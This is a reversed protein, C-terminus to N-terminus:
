STKVATPQDHLLNSAVTAACLAAGSSRSLARTSIVPEAAVRWGAQTRRRIVSVSM